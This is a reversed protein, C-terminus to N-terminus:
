VFHIRQSHKFNDRFAGRRQIFLMERVPSIQVIKFPNEAVWLSICALTDKNTASLVVAAATLM